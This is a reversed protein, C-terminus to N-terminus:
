DASDTQLGLQGALWQMQKRFQIWRVSRHSSLDQALDMLYEFALADEGNYRFSVHQALTRLLVPAANPSEDAAHAIADALLNCAFDLGEGVSGTAIDRRAVTM